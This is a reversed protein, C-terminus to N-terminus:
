ETVIYEYKVNNLIKNVASKHMENNGSEIEKILEVFVNEPNMKTHDLAVDLASTSKCNDPTLKYDRVKYDNIKIEINHVNLNGNPLKELEYFSETNVNELTVFAEGACDIDVVPNTMKFKSKINLPGYTQHTLITFPDSTARIVKFNVDNLNNVVIKSLHLTFMNYRYTTRSKLNESASLRSKLYTLSKEICERFNPDFKSCPTPYFLALNIVIQNFIVLSVFLKSFRNM